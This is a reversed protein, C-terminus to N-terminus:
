EVTFIIISVIEFNYLFNEFRIQVSSISGIIVAIVNLLILALITIDFVRSVTDNQSAVEVIQWIRRKIRM